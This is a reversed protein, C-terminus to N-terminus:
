GQVPGSAMTVSTESLREAVVRVRDRERAIAADHEEGFAVDVVLSPSDAGEFTVSVDLGEESPPRPRLSRTAPPRGSVEDYAARLGEFMARASQWRDEKRFALARDVASALLPTADPVFTSLPMVPNKMAALTTDLATPEEHIRRRSLARYMVAGVAFLDSRADIADPTGRAQEPAM